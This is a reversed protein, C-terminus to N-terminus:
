SNTSFNENLYTIIDASEYLWEVKEGTDIKLCPVMLSGGGQKLENAHESGQHINKTKFDIGLRTMAIRVRFCFPCTSFYYLTHNEIQRLAKAEKRSFLSFLKSLM